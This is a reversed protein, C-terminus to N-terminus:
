VSSMIQEQCIHVSSHSLSSPRRRCHRNEQLTRYVSVLFMAANHSSVTPSDWWLTYALVRPNLLVSSFARGNKSSKADDKRDFFYLYAFRDFSPHADAFPLM